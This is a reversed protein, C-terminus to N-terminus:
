GQGPKRSRWIVFLASTVAALRVAWPWTDSLAQGLGGTPIPAGWRGEARGWLWVFWGGVAVGPIGMVAWKSETHSLKRTLYALGWGAVLVFWNGIVAGVILLGAVVLLLLSVPEGDPRRLLSPRPRAEVAEEAEVEGDATESGAAEVAEVAAEPEQQRTPPKLIEPIEIGGVFGHVPEGPAATGFPGPTVRWWDSMERSGSGSGSGSGTTEPAAELFVPSLAGRAPEDERRQVPVKGSDKRTTASQQGGADAVAEDPTGLATLIRQVAAPTDAGETTRRHEIETRLRSVLRMRDASTLATRQAIDGVRSLYDFVLQDSEIGM